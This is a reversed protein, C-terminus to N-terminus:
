VYAAAIIVGDWKINKRPTSYLRSEVSEGSDSITILANANLLDVLSYFIGTVLPYASSSPLLAFIPLLLPAQYCNIELLPYPSPSSVQHYVGGDYPSVNRTYLFLGEQVTTVILSM